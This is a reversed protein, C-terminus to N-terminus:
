KQGSLNINFEESLQIAEKIKDEIAYPQIEFYAPKDLPKGTVKLYLNFGKRVVQGKNM